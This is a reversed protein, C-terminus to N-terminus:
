LVEVNKFQALDVRKHVINLVREILDPAVWVDM